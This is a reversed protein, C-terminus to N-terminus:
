AGVAQSVEKAIKAFLQGLDTGTSSANSAAPAGAGPPAVIQGQQNYTAHAHHHGHHHPQLASLDGTNATTQFRNALNSLFDSQPGTAQQAANQLQTAIDSVVQTFKTPDQSQLQQLQSLLQGPGSIKASDGGVSQVGGASDNGTTPVTTVSVSLETLQIETLSTNTTTAGVGNIM